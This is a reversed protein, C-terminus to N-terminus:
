IIQNRKMMWEYVANRHLTNQAIRESHVSMVITFMDQFEMRGKLFRAVTLCARPHKRGYKQIFAHLNM